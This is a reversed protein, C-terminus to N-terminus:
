RCSPEPQRGPICGGVSNRGPLPTLSSFGRLLLESQTLWLTGSVKRNRASKKSLHILHSCFSVSHFFLIVPSLLTPFLLRFLLFFLIVPSCLTLPFSVSYCFSCPSPHVFHSSFSVSYCFSLTVPSLLVHVIQLNHVKHRCTVKDGVKSDRGRNM